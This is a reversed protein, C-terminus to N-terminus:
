LGKVLAHALMGPKPSLLMSPEEPSQWAEAASPDLCCLGHGSPSDPPSQVWGRSSASALPRPWAEGLHNFPNSPAWDQGSLLPSSPSVREAAECSRRLPRAPKKASDPMAKHERRQRAALHAGYQVLRSIQCRHSGTGSAGAEAGARGM